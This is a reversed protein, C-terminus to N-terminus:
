VEQVGRRDSRQEALISAMIRDREERVDPRLAICRLSTMVKVEQLDLTGDKDGQGERDAVQYIHTIEEEPPRVGNNVEKELGHAGAALAFM